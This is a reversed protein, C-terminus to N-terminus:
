DAPQAAPAVMTPEDVSIATERGLRWIALLRWAHLVLLALIAASAVSFFFAAHPPALRVDLPRRDTPLPFGSDVNPTTLASFYGVATPVRLSRWGVSAMWATFCTLSLMVMGLWASAYRVDYYGPLLALAAKRAARRFRSRPERAPILDTAPPLFLFAILLPAVVILSVWSILNFLKNAGPALNMATTDTMLWVPAGGVYAEYVEDASPMTPASRGHELATLAARARADNPVERYLAKAREVRGAYDNAVAACYRRVDSADKALRDEFDAVIEAHGISDALGIPLTAFALHRNVTRIAILTAVFCVVFAAVVAWREGRRLSAAVQPLRALRPAVVIFAVIGFFAALHRIGAGGEFSLGEFDIGLQIALYTTAASAVSGVIVGWPKPLADVFPSLRGRWSQAPVGGASRARDLAVGTMLVFFVILGFCAAIWFDLAYDIRAADATFNFPHSRALDLFKEEAAARPDGLRRFHATWAAAAIHEGETMGSLSRARQLWLYARDTDALQAKHLRMVPVNILREILTTFQVPQPIRGRERVAKEWARDAWERQGYREFYKSMWTWTTYPVPFDRALMDNWAARAEGDRGQALLAQGLFFFTWPQTADRAISARLASELAPLSTPIKPDVDKPPLLRFQPKAPQTDIIGTVDGFFNEGLTWGSKMARMRLLLNGGAYILPQDFRGGRFALTRMPPENTSERDIYGIDFGGNAPTFTRIIGPMRYRNVVAGNAPNIALLYGSDYREGGAAKSAVYTERQYLLGDFFLGYRTTYPQASAAAAKYHTIADALAGANLRLDGLRVHSAVDNPELKLVEGLAEAAKDNEKLQLEAEARYRLADASRPAQDLFALAKKPEHETYLAHVAALLSVVEGVGDASTKRLEIQNPTQAEIRVTAPAHTELAATPDAGKLEDRAADNKTQGAATAARKIITFHPQIETEQRLAFAEGWVVVGAGLREGLQRAADNHRV